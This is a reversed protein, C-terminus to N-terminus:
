QKFWWAQHGLHIIINVYSKFLYVTIQTINDWSVTLTEIHYHINLNRLFIKRVMCIVSPTVSFSATDDLTHLLGKVDTWSFWQGLISRSALRIWNCVIFCASVFIVILNYAEKEMRFHLSIFLNAIALEAHSHTTLITAACMQPAMYRSVLKHVATSQAMSWATQWQIRVM